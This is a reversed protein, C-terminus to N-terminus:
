RVEGGLKRMKDLFEEQSKEMWGPKFSRWETYEAYSAAAGGVNIAAGNEQGTLVIGNNKLNGPYPSLKTPKLYDKPMKRGPPINEGRVPANQKLIYLLEYMIMERTPVNM